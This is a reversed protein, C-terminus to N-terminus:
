HHWWSPLLVIMSISLGILAFLAGLYARRRRQERNDVSAWFSALAMLCGALSLLVCHIAVDDSIGWFHSSIACAATGLLTATGFILATGCFPEAPLPPPISPPELSHTPLPEEPLVAQLRDVARSIFATRTESSDIYSAEQRIEAVAEARFERASETRGLTALSSAAATLLDIRAVGLRTRHQEIIQRCRVDPTETPEAIFGLVDATATRRPQRAAEGQRRIADVLDGIPM